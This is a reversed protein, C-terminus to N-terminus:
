ALDAWDDTCDWIKAPIETRGMARFAALRHGGAILRLKGTKKIKRVQIESQLGLTEISHTLSKVATESVPRLRNSTDIDDLPIDKIEILRPPRM